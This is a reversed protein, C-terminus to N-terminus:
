YLVMIYGWENLIAGYHEEVNLISCYNVEVNLIAGYHEM